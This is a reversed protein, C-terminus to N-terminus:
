HKEGQHKDQKGMRVFLAVVVTALAALGTAFYFAARYGKLIDHTSTGSGRVYSEVTGTMGLGISLSYNTIMSVLGAAIGQFEKSVSDSVILQGTSFSLDPGFVVLVCSFFTNGWYTSNTPATAALLNGVVFSFMAALFIFHGPIRHILVPVLMAACMGGPVIPIIEAVITLPDHHNRINRIFLTTYLLFTGFSMWGLWLCLYVLLSDRTLVEVPVLANKGMRREWWLFAGFFVFSVIFLAYVYPESWRRSAVPAQNWCFNFLGLGLALLLAGLYDFVRESPNRHPEDPPLILLGGVLFVTMLIATFWFIWGMSVLQGFLAGILGGVWFGAPALAGLMAFAVNRAQGPPYTRGLIAIANPLSLASGIGNIARTIDFPIPSKCFGSGINSVVMIAIGISWWLRPGYLDGLRGAAVLFMGVTMGYSAVMWSLQGPDVTGLAPGIVYLPVMILGTGAQAFLQTACAVGIFTVRFLNGRGDLYHQSPPLDEPSPEEPDPRAHDLSRQSASSSSPREKSPPHSTPRTSSSQHGNAVIEGPLDKTTSQQGEQPSALAVSSKLDNSTNM